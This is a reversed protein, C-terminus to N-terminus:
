IRTRKARRSSQKHHNRERGRGRSAVPALRSLYITTIAYRVRYLLANKCKKTHTHTYLFISFIERASDPLAQKRTKKIKKKNKYERAERVREYLHLRYNVRPGKQWRAPRLRSDSRLLNSPAAAALVRRRSCGIVVYNSSFKEASSTQVNIDVNEARLTMNASVCVRVCM